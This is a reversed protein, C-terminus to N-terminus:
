DGEPNLDVRYRVRVLADDAPPVSLMTRFQGADEDITKYPTHLGDIFLWLSNKKHAQSTYFQYEAGDGQGLFEDVWECDQGAGCFYVLDVEVTQDAGTQNGVSADIQFYDRRTATETDDARAVVLDWKAPEGGGLTDGELWMKMKLNNPNRSDIAAWMWSGETISKSVYNSASYGDGDYVLLGEDHGTDGLKVEGTILDRGDAWRFRLYRSGSETTSGATTIRFRAMMKVGPFLTWPEGAGGDEEAESETFLAESVGALLASMTQPSGASATLFLSAGNFGWDGVAASATIDWPLNGEWWAENVTDALAAGWDGVSTDLSQWTMSGPIGNVYAKASTGKGDMWPWRFGCTYSGYDASWNPRVGIWLEEGADPVLSAPIFFTTATNHPLAAVLTGQRMADPESSRVVALAGEAQGVTGGALGTPAFFTWPGVNIGALSSPHTPVTYKVWFEREMWGDFQFSLGQCLDHEESTHAHAATGLSSWVSRSGTYPGTSWIQFAQSDTLGTQWYTAGSFGDGDVADSWTGGTVTRGFDDLMYCRTDAFPECPQDLSLVGPEPDMGGAIDLLYTEGGPTQQPKDGFEPHRIHVYSETSGLGSHLSKPQRVNIRPQPRSKDGM